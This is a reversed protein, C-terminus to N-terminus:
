AASAADFVVAPYAAGFERRMRNAISKCHGIGVM